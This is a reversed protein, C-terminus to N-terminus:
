PVPVRRERLELAWKEAWLMARASWVLPGLVIESRAVLMRARERRVRELEQEVVRLQLKLPPPFSRRGREHRRGFGAPQPVQLVLPGPVRERVAEREERISIREVATGM